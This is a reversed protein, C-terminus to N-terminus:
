RRRLLSRLIVRQDSEHIARAEKRAETLTAHGESIVDSGDPEAGRDTFHIDFYGDIPWAWFQGPEGDFYGYRLHQPSEVSM